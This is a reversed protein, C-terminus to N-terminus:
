PINKVRDLNIMLINKLFSEIIEGQESFLTEPTYGVPTGVTVTARFLLDGNFLFANYSSQGNDAMYAYLAFDYEYSLVPKLEIDTPYLAQLEYMTAIVEEFTPPLGGNICNEALSPNISWSTGTFDRCIRSNGPIDKTYQWDSIGIDATFGNLDKETVLWDPNLTVPKDPESTPTKTPVSTNTPAPTKTPLPTFTSPVPTLAPACGGVLIALLVVALFGLKHKKM